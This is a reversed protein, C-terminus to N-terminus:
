VPMPEAKAPTEDAGDAKAFVQPVQQPQGQLFSIAQVFRRAMATSRELFLWKDGGKAEIAVARCRQKPTLQDWVEPSVHQGWMALSPTSPGGGQDGDGPSTPGRGGSRESSPQPELEDTALAVQRLGGISIMVAKGESWSLAEMSEPRTSNFSSIPFPQPPAFRIRAQGASLLLTYTWGGLTPSGNARRTVVKEGPPHVMDITVGSRADLVFEQLFHRSSQLGSQALTRAAVAAGSPTKNPSSSSAGANSRPTSSALPSHQRKPHYASRQYLRLNAYRPQRELPHASPGRPSAYQLHSYSLAEVSPDEEKPGRLTSESISGFRDTAQCCPGAVAGIGTHGEDMTMPIAGDYLEVSAMDKPM